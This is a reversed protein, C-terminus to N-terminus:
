KSRIRSLTEQSIGLMSAIHGLKARKVVEPAIENLYQYKGRADRQAFEKSHIDITVFAKEMLSNSFLVFENRESLIRSNSKSICVVDTDELVEFYEKTPKETSYSELSTFIENEAFIWLTVEKGDSVYYKRVLGDSIFWIKDCYNGEELIYEGKKFSEAVANQKLL